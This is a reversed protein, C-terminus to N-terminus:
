VAHGSDLGCRSFVCCRNQGWWGDIGPRDFHRYDFGPSLIEAQLARLRPFALPPWHGGWARHSLQFMCVICTRAVHYRGRAPPSETKFQPFEATSVRIPAAQSAAIEVVAARKAPEVKAVERAQRENQLGHNVSEPLSGKVQAAEILQSARMRTMGWKKRCYDEFTGGTKASQSAIRGNQGPSRLM